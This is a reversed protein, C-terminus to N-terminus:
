QSIAKLKETCDRHLAQIESAHATHLTTIESAHRNITEMQGVHLAQIELDYAARLTTNLTAIESAHKAVMEMKERHLRGIDEDLQAIHERQMRIVGNHEHLLATTESHYVEQMFERLETSKRPDALAQDWATDGFFFEFPDCFM